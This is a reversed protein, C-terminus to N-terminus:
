ALTFSIQVNQFRELLTQWEMYDVNCRLATTVRRSVLLANRNTTLRFNPKCAYPSGVLIFPWILVRRGLGHGSVRCVDDTKEYVMTRDLCCAKRHEHSM